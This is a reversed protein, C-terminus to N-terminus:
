IELGFNSQHLQLSSYVEKGGMSGSALEELGGLPEASFSELPPIM